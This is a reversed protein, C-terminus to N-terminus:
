QLVYRTQCASGGHPVSTRDPNSASCAPGAYPRCMSAQACLRAVLGLLLVAAAALGTTAAARDLDATARHAASSVFLRFTSAGIVGLVGAYWPLRSAILLGDAVPDGSM